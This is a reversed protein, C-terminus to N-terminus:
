QTHGITDGEPEVLLRDTHHTVVEHHLFELHIGAVIVRQLDVTVNVEGVKILNEYLYTHSCLVVFKDVGLLGVLADDKTLGVDVEHTHQM